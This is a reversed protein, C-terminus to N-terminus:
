HLMDRLSVDALTKFIELSSLEVVERSLRKWHMVMRKTFFNKSINWRFRAQHLKPGNGKTRERTVKHLLSFEVESGGGKLYSYLAVINRRLMM